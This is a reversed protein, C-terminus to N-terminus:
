DKKQENKEKRKNFRDLKAQTELYKLSKGTYAPIPPNIIITEIIKYKTVEEGDSNIIPDDIKSEYEKILEDLPRNKYPIVQYIADLNFYSLKMMTTPDEIKRLIVGKNKNQISALYLWYQASSTRKEIKIKKKNGLWDEFELIREAETAPNFLDLIVQQEGIFKSFSQENPLLWVGNPDQTFGYFKAKKILEDKQLKKFKNDTLPKIVDTWRIITRPKLQLKRNQTVSISQPKFRSILSSQRPNITRKVPINSSKPKTIGRNVVSVKGSDYRRTHQVQKRSSSRTPLKSKRTNRKNM